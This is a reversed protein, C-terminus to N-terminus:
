FLLNKHFKKVIKIKEILKTFTDVVSNSSSESIVIHDINNIFYENQGVFETYIDGYKLPIAELYQFVLNQIDVDNAVSQFLYFLM